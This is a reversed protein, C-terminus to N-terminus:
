VDPRTAVLGGDAHRAAEAIGTAAEDTDVTRMTAAAEEVGRSAITVSLIGTGRERGGSACGDGTMIPIADM